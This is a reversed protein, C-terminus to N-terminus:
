GGQPVGTFEQLRVGFSQIRDLVAHTDLSADAGPVSAGPPSARRRARPDHVRRRDGGHRHRRARRCRGRPVRAWRGRQCWAGRRAARRHSGRRAPRAVDAAPRHVPRSPAGLPPRHHPARGPVRRAAPVPRRLRRPLLGERGGARPVLVARAWQRRPLRGVRRRALRPGTALAVPPLRARVGPRGHRPDRRPDRRGSALQDALHRALLGSLGPSM